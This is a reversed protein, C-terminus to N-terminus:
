ERAMRELQRKIKKDKWIEVANECDFIIKLQGLMVEVDAIESIFSDLSVSNPETITKVLVQQLEAMEEIAKISQNCKGYYAAICKLKKRNRDLM